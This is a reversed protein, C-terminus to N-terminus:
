AREPADPTAAALIARTAAAIADVDGARVWAPRVLEGGMGVCAAGADLYPRVDGAGVGGTAMLQVSPLPGRLARVYAPGGVTSAPFLKILPCGWGQAVVIESPTLTGPVYAVDRDACAEAVELSANPGVVFAAGADLALLVGGADTVSGAGVIVGPPATEVLRALVRDAGPGRLTFEVVTAGGQALGAVAAIARDADPEYFLPIVRQARAAALLAAATV